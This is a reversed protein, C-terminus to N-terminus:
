KPIRWAGDAPRSGKFWKGGLSRVVENVESWSQDLYRKPKMTFGDFGDLIEMDHRSLVTPSPPSSQTALALSM